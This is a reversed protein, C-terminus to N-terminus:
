RGMEVKRIDSKSANNLSYTDFAPEEPLHIHLNRIKDIIAKGETIRLQFVHGGLTRGESVFHMHWGAGNIGDMYDPFYVCVLTGKLNRFTFDKQTQSLIDKLAIHQSRYPEESRAQIEEFYGDIRVMHMSNLGFREEIKVDLWTKLEDFDLPGALFRREVLILEGFQQFEGSLANSFQHFQLFSSLGSGGFERFGEPFKPSKLILERLVRM